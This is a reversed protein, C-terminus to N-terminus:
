TPEQTPAITGKENSLRWLILLGIVGSLGLFLWFTRTVESTQDLAWGGLIPGVFYGIAWCQASIGTYIGRLSPPALQSLLAAAFPRYLITAIALVGLAGIQVPPQVSALGGMLWVLGFGGSWLGMSVALARINGLPAFLHAIPIQLVAGLGIYWWTFSSAINATSSKLLFNTFYLPLAVNVLAIYTTFLINAAVFIRLAKDQLAILWGESHEGPKERTETIGLQILILFGVFLLSTFLFLFRPQKVLALLLGGGLIGVGVGLNDTVGLMAFAQSRQEPETMDMVAADAATWYFGMSLGLLLNAVILMPLTQTFALAIAALISLSASLLLTGRRGTQSDSLAGGLFNGVVGSISSSALGIGVSTASLGVQNVFVIPVYFQLLGQGVQFLGRAASQVWVQRKFRPLLSLM